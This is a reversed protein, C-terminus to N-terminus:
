EEDDEVCYDPCGYKTNQKGCVFCQGLYNHKNM